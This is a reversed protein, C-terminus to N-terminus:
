GTPNESDGSKFDARYASDLSNRTEHVDIFHEVTHVAPALKYETRAFLAKVFLLTKLVLRIATRIATLRALLHAGAPGAALTASAGPLHKRCRAAVAASNRFHRKIRAAVFRDIAPIAEGRTRRIASDIGAFM